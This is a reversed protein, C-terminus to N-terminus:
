LEVGELWHQAFIAFDFFDVRGNADLDGPIGPKPPVAGIFSKDGGDTDICPSSSLLSFDGNNVDAFQPDAYISHLDNLSSRTNVGVVPWASIIGALTTYDITSLQALKANAGITWYCNNEFYNGGIYNQYDYICYITTTPLSGSGMNILSSDAVCINDYCLNNVAKDGSGTTICGTNMVPSPYCYLTSNKITNSSAGAEVLYPWNGQAICGDVLANNARCVIPFFADKVFCNQITVGGGYTEGNVNIGEWAQGNPNRIKYNELIINNGDIEVASGPIMPSQGAAAQNTFIGNASHVVAFMACGWASAGNMMIENINGMSATITKCFSDSNANWNLVFDLTLVFSATRGQVVNYTYSSVQQGKQIFIQITDGAVWTGAVNWRVPANVEITEMNGAEDAGDIIANTCDSDCYIGQNPASVHTHKIYQLPGSTLLIGSSYSLPNAWVNCDILSLSSSSGDAESIVFGNPDDTSFNNRRFTAGHATLVPADTGNGLQICPRDGTTTYTGGNVNMTVSGGLWAIQYGSKFTCNNLNIVGGINGTTSYGFMCASSPATAICNTFIRTSNALQGAGANADFLFAAYPNTSVFNVERFEYSIPQPYSYSYNHFYMYGSINVNVNCADTYNFVYVKGFNDHSNDNNLDFNQNVSMTYTGSAM